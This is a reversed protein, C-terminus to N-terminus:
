AGGQIKKKRYDNGTLLVGDCMDMIRSVTRQSVNAELEELSDNTTIVTPKMESYRKNIVLYLQEKVWDTVKEAGLDDLILLDAEEIMKLPSDSSRTNFGARIESLLAPVEVFRYNWTDRKKLGERVIAAALHTKGTGVPGSILLGREGPLSHVFNQIKKVAAKQEKTTPRYNDFTCGWFRKGLGSLELLRKTMAEEFMECHRMILKGNEAAPIQGKRPSHKSCLAGNVCRACDVLRREFFSLQPIGAALIEETDLGLEAVKVLNMQRLFVATSEARTINEILDKQTRVQKAEIEQLVNELLEM